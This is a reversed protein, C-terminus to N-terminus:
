TYTPTHFDIPCCLAGLARSSGAVVDVIPSYVCRALVDSEGDERERQVDQSQVGTDRQGRARYVISEEPAAAEEDDDADGTYICERSTIKERPM